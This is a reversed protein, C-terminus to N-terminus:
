MLSAMQLNSGLRSGWIIVTLWRSSPISFIYWLSCDSPFSIVMAEKTARSIAMMPMMPRTNKSVCNRRLSIATRRTFPAVTPPIKFIILLFYRM